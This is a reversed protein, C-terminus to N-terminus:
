KNKSSNQALHIIRPLFAELHITPEMDNLPVNYDLQEACQWGIAIRSVTDDETRELLRCAGGPGMRGLLNMVRQQIDKWEIGTKKASLYPELHPLIPNLIDKLAEAPLSEQWHDLADLPWVAMSPNTLGMKLASTLASSVSTSLKSILWSPIELVM